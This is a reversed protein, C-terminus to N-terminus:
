LVMLAILKAVGLLMLSAIISYISRKVIDEWSADEMEKTYKASLAALLYFFITLNWFPPALIGYTPTLIWSFICITIWANLMSSVLGVLWSFIITGFMKM